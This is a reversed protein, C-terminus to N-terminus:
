EIHVGVIWGGCYYLDYYYYDCQMIVKGMLFFFISENKNVVIGGDLFYSENLLIDCFLELNTNEIDGDPSHYSLRNFCKSEGIFM